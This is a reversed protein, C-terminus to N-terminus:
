RSELIMTKVQRSCNCNVHNQALKFHIGGPFFKKRGPAASDFVNESNAFMCAKLM